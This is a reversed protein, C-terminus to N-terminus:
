LWNHPKRPWVFWYFVNSNHLILTQRRVDRWSTMGSTLIIYFRDISSCMQSCWHQHWNQPKRPWPIWHFVNSTHLILAHPKVDRWSMMSSTLIIYSRDISSCMRSCRHQHWNQPKRPWPIWHFVNLTHLILAHHMVDRWSTMSSTLIIYSRDITSCMRSCRHQHWNQPKRLWPIWHFVNLTHLILAHRMVDRWSTTRSTLIIYSRDGSSSMRSCQHQHWNQSTQLWTLCDLLNCNCHASDTHSAKRWTM